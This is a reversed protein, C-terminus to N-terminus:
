GKCKREQGRTSIRTDSVNVVRSQTICANQVHQHLRTCLSDPICLVSVMSTARALLLCSHDSISFTPISVVSKIETQHLETPSLVCALECALIANLAWRGTFNARDIFPSTRIDTREASTVFLSVIWDDSLLDSADPSSLMIAYIAIFLLIVLTTITCKHTHIHTLTHWSTTM